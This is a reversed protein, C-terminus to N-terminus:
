LDLFHQHTMWKRKRVVEEEMMAIHVAPGGFGLFGLKSFVIAVEKLRNM